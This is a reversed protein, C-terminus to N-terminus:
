LTLELVALVACLFGTEFFWFFFFIIIIIIIAKNYLVLLDESFSILIVFVTLIGYIFFLIGVLLCFYHFVEVILVKFFRFVSFSLL